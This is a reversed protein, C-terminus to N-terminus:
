EVTVSKALNRPQDVDTGKFVAVYYALLQAPVSYLIPSLFDIVPPLEISDKCIDEAQKIGDAESLIILKGGRASVEQVNSLLKAFRDNCPAIVIVYLEEDVLAIPGHKLEGAAIGEAHIYSLEKLKLAAEKAIGYSVGRGIYLVSHSTVLKSAIAKVQAHNNLVKSMKAPLRRFSRMIEVVESETMLNKEQAIKLTLLAFVALQSTFAKTSAVGIEPGAHLYIINDAINSMSGMQNNVLILNKRGQERVIKLAKLTDATEGSQSIFIVLDNENLKHDHIFESAIYLRVTVDSYQELWYKAVEGSYLSTGCAVIVINDIKSYDLDVKDFSIVNTIRDYYTNILNAIVTPQEDIEKQMFHRYNEKGVYIQSINQEIFDRTVIQDNTDFIEVKENSLYVIDDDELYCIKTTLPAMVFADSGIYKEDQGIGIALPSGRKAAILLDPYEKLVIGLAFAGQIKELVKRIALHIEDGQVLFCDLLYPVIETDTDSKFKYGLEELDTRLIKFNEIIGNHVVAIKGNDHPHANETIPRGHTAWRTHAIGLTGPVERDGIKNVLEKIKGSAKEIQLEGNNIIAIGSSDYGRYELRKLGDILHEAVQNKGIIGFIGCM